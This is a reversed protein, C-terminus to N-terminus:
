LFYLVSRLKKFNVMQLLFDRVTFKRGKADEVIEDGSYSLAQLIRKVKEHSNQPLIAISDGPSYDIASDKLDLVFHWTERSAGENNLVHRKIVKSLFPNHRDYLSM